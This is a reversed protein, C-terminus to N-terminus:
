TMTGPRLTEPDAHPDRSHLSESARPTPEASIAEVRRFNIVSLGKGCTAIWLSPLGARRGPCASAWSRRAASWLAGTDCRGRGGAGSGGSRCSIGPDVASSRGPDRPKMGSSGAPRPVFFGVGSVRSAGADM